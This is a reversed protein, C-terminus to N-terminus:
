GSPWLTWALLNLVSRLKRPIRRVRRDGAISTLPARGTEVKAVNANQIACFLKLRARGSFRRDQKGVRLRRGGGKLVQQM